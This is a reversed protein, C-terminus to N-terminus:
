RAGGARQWRTAVRLLSFLAGDLVLSLAIAMVTGAAIPTLFLDRAIGDAYILDGLGGGAVFVAITAVAVTELTALRIGTLIAPVSLPLEVRQFLQRRSMGMGRAAELVAPPVADLGTLTTRVLMVLAYGTLGVIAPTRGIGTITVLVAFLAISPITYIAATGGGVLARGIRSHRVLTALPVAIAIAIAVSIVVLVLHQWTARMIDDSHRNIWEGRIDPM